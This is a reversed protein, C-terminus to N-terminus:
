NNKMETWLSYWCSASGPLRLPPWCVGWPADLQPSSWPSPTALILPSKFYFPSKEFHTDTSFSIYFIVCFIKKFKLCCATILSLYYTILSLHYTICSLHYYILSLYLYYTIILLLHHSILLLHHSIFLLNYLILSLLYTIFILLLHYTM